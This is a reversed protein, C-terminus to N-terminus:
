NPRSLVMTRAALACLRCTIQYIQDTLDEDRIAECARIYGVLSTQEIMARYGAMETPHTERFHAPFWRQLVTDSVAAMGQQQVTEIRTNWSGATGIKPATNSLILKELREPHMLALRQGIVGGISLGVFVCKEIGLCTSYAM